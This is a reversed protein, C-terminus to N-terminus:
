STIAPCNCNLRCAEESTIGMLECLEYVTYSEKAPNSPDTYAVLEEDIMVNSDCNYATRWTNCANNLVTQRKMELSAPILSGSFFAAVVVLVLVAIAVIVIANIPLSIGKM